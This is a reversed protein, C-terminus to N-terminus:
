DAELARVLLNPGIPLLTGSSPPFGAGLATGLMILGARRPDPLGRAAATGDHLLRLHVTMGTRRRLEHDLFRLSVERLPGYMSRTGVPRGRSLYSALSVLISPDLAGFRRQGLEITDTVVDLLFDVVGARTAHSDPTQSPISPLLDLRALQHNKVTGIGRKVASHGFDLVVASTRPQL